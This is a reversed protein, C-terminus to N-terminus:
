FARDERTAGASAERLSRREAGLEPNLLYLGGRLRPDDLRRVPVEPLPEILPLPRAHELDWALQRLLWDEPATALAMALLRGLDFGVPRRGHIVTSLNAPAVGIAHALEGQSIGYRDLYEVKLVAGPHLVPSPFLSELRVDM